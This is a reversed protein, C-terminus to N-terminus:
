FKYNIDLFIKNIAQVTAHCAYNVKSYGDEDLLTYIKDYVIDCCKNEAYACYRM